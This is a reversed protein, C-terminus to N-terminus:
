KNQKFVIRFHRELKERIAVATDYDVLEHDEGYKMGEMIDNIILQQRRIQDGHKKVNVM